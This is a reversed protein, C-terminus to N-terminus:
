KGLLGLKRAETDAVCDCEELQTKLKDSQFKRHNEVAQAQRRQVADYTSVLGYGIAGGLACASWVFVIISWYTAKRMEVELIRHRDM